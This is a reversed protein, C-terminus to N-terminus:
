FGINISLSYIRENPYGLHETSSNEPDLDYKVAESFTLLNMGSLSVTTRSLWKIDKLVSSKLNYSLTLNKLRVYAGNILWFDSGVYNNGGNYESTVFRPFKAGPNSPTWFDTEYSYVLPLEKTQAAQGNSLYMDYRTSGQWLMSLSFGKYSASMNVGFNGRPFNNKGIRIQDSGDITGDGNFDAYKIDGAALNISNLRQPSNYVDAQSQYFGLNEYGIGYYGVEQTTRRYPNMLTALDADEVPSNAWLQDFYTFNASVDYSFDGRKDQWGLLFDFGARRHEGDTTVKPYSYGLPAIYGTEEASATYLFGKTAYYFYDVTGYLRNNMSAFDFGFDVQTTSFWSIDTSPPSGESFGPVYAGDVVWAKNNLSYSTLYSFRGIGYPDSWNDLGIQGYSGRIKFTNLIDNEKINDMFPEAALDWGASASWFNGWRNDEPFLDSGDRRFGIEAFYRNDYNYKLQGVYGARGYESESGSNKQTAEPGVMMQDIDFQYNERSGSYYSGFGYTQEFVFLGSMTHKDIQKNYSASLQTNWTFGKGTGYSLRPLGDYLPTSTSEWNYKAPDKQWSKNTNVYLRYNGTAAFSLGKVGPVDWKINLNGNGMFADNNNYGVDGMTEAYPNNTTNYPLGYLNTAPALPSRNRIMVFLQYSGGMTSTLPHTEYQMLGDITANVSLGTDGIVTSNNLRWNIREMNYNNSRYFSEQDVYGMSFYYKNIDNGGSLSMNHTHTPATDRLVVERWNTNSFSVPDSGDRMAQINEDTFQPTSVGSNSRSLNSYYARDWVDMPEPVINPTYLSFTYSYNLSPAGTLGKKTTIQIIGNSARSGYVATASADKLVSMSAIDEPLIHLFDGYDRIIGDIVILPTGGGRISITPQSNVGGGSAKVILGPARGALGQALNTIPASTLEESDVTSVSSILARKTSTGYGVVVVEDLDRADEILTVEIKTNNGITINQTVFGIFSIELISGPAADISFEGDITTVGTQTAENWVTAGTIPGASDKVTGTVTITQAGVYMWSCLACFLILLFKHKM